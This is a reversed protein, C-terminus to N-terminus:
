HSKENKHTASRRFILREILRDQLKEVTVTYPGIQLEEGKRPHRGLTAILMGGITDAENDPDLDLGLLEMADPVAVSGSMEVTGDPLTQIQEPEEDFEDRMPGVIEEIADEMFALGVNTGHEDIALACHTNREQLSGIFRTLKMTDPVDELPRILKSLSIAIGDLSHHLVDRVHIMGVIHDMDPDGVPFRSHGCSRILALNEEDTRSTSLIRVERRPVMVHRVERHSLGLINEGLMRQRSSIKGTTAAQAILLRLDAVDYADEHGFGGTVGVLRLLLNSIGNILAILPRFVLTFLYLPYAIALAATEAQRISLVKPAQEGVTMHLLTVVMLAIALAAPRLWGASAVDVGLGAALDVLLTAVAPEALWGLILSSLTIGLQCASLYLDLKGLMLGIIRAKRDGGAARRELPGPRVKVLAFEAAVFFGNLFVFLATALLKWGVGGGDTPISGLELM